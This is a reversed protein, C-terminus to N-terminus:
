DKSSTFQSIDASLTEINTKYPDIDKSSECNNELLQM